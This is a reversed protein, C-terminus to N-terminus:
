PTNGREKSALNSFAKAM